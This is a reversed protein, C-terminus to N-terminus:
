IGPGGKLVYVCDTGPAGILLESAGDGDRDRASAVSAGAHTNSAARLVGAADATRVIGSIPGPFFFSVAGYPAEGYDPAGILVDAFGDANADELIAVSMGAGLDELDGLVQGAANDLSQIGDPNGTVLYAGGGEVAGLDLGPAGILFDDRGDGDVDFGGSLAIGVGDDDGGPFTAFADTHLSAAPHPGHFLWTSSSGFFGDADSLLLDALGDGDVDGAGQVQRGFLPGSIVADSTAGGPGLYVHVRERGPEGAIWDMLGDGNTDGAGALSAGLESYENPAYILDAESIGVTEPPGYHVYVVGEGLPGADKHGLLVDAFGDGNVDGPAAAILHSGRPDFDDDAIYHADIPDTHGREEFPGLFVIAGGANWGLTMDSPAAVLVDDTGDGNLDGADVVIEGTQGNGLACMAYDANPYLDITDWPGCGLALEDCDNDIGDGCTETDECGAWPPTPEPEVPKRILTPEPTACGAIALFIFM